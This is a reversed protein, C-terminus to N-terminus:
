NAGPILTLNARAIDALSQQKTANGATRTPYLNAGSKLVERFLPVALDARGTNQYVAGLNLTAYPDGPHAALAAKLEPEAKAYDAKQLARFGAEAHPDGGACASLAALIASAILLKAARIQM